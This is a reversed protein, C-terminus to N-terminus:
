SVAAGLDGGLSLTALLLQRLLILLNDMEKVKDFARRM